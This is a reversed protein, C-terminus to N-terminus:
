PRRAASASGARSRPARSGPGSCARRAPRPRRPRRAASAARACSRTTRARAARTRRASGSRRGGARARVLQQHVGARDVAPDLQRGLHDVRRLRQDGLLDLGAHDHPHRHQVLQEGPAPAGAAHPRVRRPPAAARMVGVACGLSRRGAGTSSSRPRRGRAGHEHAARPQEVRARTEVARGVQEDAVPPDGLDAVASSAGSPASTTSASPRCAKGAKTSGWTWRRVGPRSSSSSMSEPVRAAAAPPKQAIRAWGFVSGTTSEAGTSRESRSRARASARM